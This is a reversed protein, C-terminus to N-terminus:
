NIRAEQLSVTDFNIYVSISKKHTKHTTEAASTINKAAEKLLAKHLKGLEILKSHHTTSNVTFAVSIPLSHNQRM